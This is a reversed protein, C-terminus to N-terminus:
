WMAPMLRSKAVELEVFTWPLPPLSHQADGNAVEPDDLV